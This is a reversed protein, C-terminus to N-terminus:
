LRKAAALPGYYPPRAAQEPYAGRWARRAAGRLGPRLTGDRGVELEPVGAAEPRLAFGAVDRAVVSEVRVGLGVLAELMTREVPLSALGPESLTEFGPVTLRVSGDALPEAYFGGTLLELTVSRLGREVVRM